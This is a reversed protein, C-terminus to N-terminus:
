ELYLLEDEDLVVVGSIEQGTYDCSLNIAPPLYLGKSRIESEDLPCVISSSFHIINKVQVLCGLETMKSSEVTAIIQAEGKCAASFREIGNGANAISTISALVLTAVLNLKM